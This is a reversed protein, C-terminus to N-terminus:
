AQALWQEIMARAISIPNPMEVEGSQVAQRYEARSYFRAWDIEVEDVVPAAPQDPELYAKFGLMLSRPFPWPQSAVYEVRGIRLGVEEFTERVVAQEPSEGIEMFGAVLSAYGPRWMTNHALLLRDKSDFIAVIVSPDIRPYEVHQCGGCQRQWGAFRIQTAAGCVACFRARRHWAALGAGVALLQRDTDALLLGQRRLDNWEEERQSQLHVAVLAVDEDVGLFFAGKVEDRELREVPFRPQLSSGAFRHNDGIVLVSVAQPHLGPCHAAITACLEGSSVDGGLWAELDLHPRAYTAPDWKGAALPLEMSM